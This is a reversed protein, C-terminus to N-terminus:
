KRFKGRQIVRDLLERAERPLGIEFRASKLATPKDREFQYYAGQRFICWGTYMLLLGAVFFLVLLPIPFKNEFYFLLVPLDITVIAGLLFGLVLAAARYTVSGPAKGYLVDGSNGDVVVQFVQGLAVYRVVWLPYYVLSLEAKVIRVLLHSKKRM